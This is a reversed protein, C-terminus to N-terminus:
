RAARRARGAKFKARAVHDCRAAAARVCCPIRAPRAGQGRLVAMKRQVPRLRCQARSAVARSHRQTVRFPLTCVRRRGWPAARRRALRVRTTRLARAPRPVCPFVGSARVLKCICRPTNRGGSRARQRRVCRVRSVALLCSAAHGHREGGHARLTAVWADRGRLASSAPCHRWSAYVHLMERLADRRAAGRHASL